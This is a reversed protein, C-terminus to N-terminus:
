RNAVAHKELLATIEEKKQLPVSKSIYSIPSRNDDTLAGSEAGAELLMRVVESNGFGCALHLATRGGHMKANPRAGRKLLFAVTQTQNEAAAYILPTAGNRAAAEIDLGSDLLLTLMDPRRKGIAHYLLTEGSASVANPDKIDGLAATLMVVDNNDIASFADNLPLDPARERSCCAMGWMLVALLLNSKLMSVIGM